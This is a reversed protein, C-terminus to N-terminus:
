EGMTVIRDDMELKVVKAAAERLEDRETLLKANENEYVALMRNALDQKLQANEAELKEIHDLALGIQCSISQAVDKDVAIFIASQINKLIAKLNDEM